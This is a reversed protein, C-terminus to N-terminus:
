WGGGGGVKGVGSPVTYSCDMTKLTWVAVGRRWRAEVGRWAAAKEPRVWCMPSSMVGSCEGRCDM